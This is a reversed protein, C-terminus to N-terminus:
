SSQDLSRAVMERDAESTCCVECGARLMLAEASKNAVEFANVFTERFNFALLEASLGLVVDTVDCPAGAPRLGMYAQAVANGLDTHVELPTWEENLWDAILSGLWAAEAELDESSLAPLMAPPVPDIDDLSSAPPGFHKQFRSQTTSHWLPLGRDRRHCQATHRPIRVVGTWQHLGVVVFM